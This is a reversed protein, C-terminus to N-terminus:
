NLIFEDLMEVQKENLYKQKTAMGGRIHKQEFNLSLVKRVQNYLEMDYYKLRYKLDYHLTSKAVNFKIATSRITSNNDVIYKAMELTRIYMQNYM